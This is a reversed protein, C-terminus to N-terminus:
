VSRLVIVTVEAPTGLRFPIGWYNTGPNIYLQSGGREYRGMALKLFAKALSWNWRPIAFQGYHTHGSLTLQVGREAIQPWLNPNHALCIVFSGTPVGKLMGEIDPAPSGPVRAFQRGAPDGSGVVWFRSGNRELEIADNVLVMAGMQELRQRVPLWGAYVDHNGPIAFVGLPGRLKGFYQTFVEMDRPYDDVQDGTYAVIDARAREAEQAVRTLHSTPTHPGVHLDSLQVIRMGELGKPLDKFGLELEKVVLQKSGFYGAIGFLVLLPAGILVMWRGGYFSAGFPLAVLAGMASGFALFIMMLQAYWFPRYAYLRVTASPYGHKMFNRVLIFLPSISLAWLVLMTRAGGPVLDTVFSSVIFWAGGTFGLIIAFFAVFQM